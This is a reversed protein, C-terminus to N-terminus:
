DSTTDHTSTRGNSVRVEQFDWKKLRRIGSINHQEAPAPAQAVSPPEEQLFVTANKTVEDPRHRHQEYNSLLVFFTGESNDIRSLLQTFLHWIVM